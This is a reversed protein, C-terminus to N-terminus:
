WHYKMKVPKGGTVAEKYGKWQIIQDVRDVKNNTVQKLAMDSMGRALIIGVFLVHLLVVLFYSVILKHKMKINHLKLLISEMNKM